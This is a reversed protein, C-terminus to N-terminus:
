AKPAFVLFYQYPLINYRKALRFGFRDLEKMVRHSAVREKLPPGIRMPRRYFDIVVVRGKSTLHRKLTEFYSERRDLYRYGNVVLILDLQQPIHPKATPSLVVTTNTLRESEITREFNQILAPDSDILYLKGSPGLAKSVRPVLYAGGAGIVAASSGSTLDLHSIVKSPERWDAGGHAPLSVFLIALTIVRM